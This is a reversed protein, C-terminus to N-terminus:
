TVSCSHLVFSKGGFGIFGSLSLAWLKSNHCALRALVSIPNCRIAKPNKFKLLRRFVSSVAQFTKM